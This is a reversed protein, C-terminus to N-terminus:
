SKIFQASIRTIHDGAPVPVACTVPLQATNDFLLVANDSPRLWASVFHNDTVGAGTHATLDKCVLNSTSNSDAIVVLTGITGDEVVLTGLTQNPSGFWTQCNQDDGRDLVLPMINGTPVTSIDVTFTCKAQFSQQVASSTSGTAQFMAMAHINGSSRYAHAGSTASTTLHHFAPGLISNNGGCAAIIACVILAILPMVNSGSNRSFIGLSKRLQKKM